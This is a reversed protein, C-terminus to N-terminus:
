LFELIKVKKGCSHPYNERKKKKWKKKGCAKKGNKRICMSKLM